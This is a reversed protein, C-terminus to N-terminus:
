PGSEPQDLLLVLTLMDELLERPQVHFFLHTSSSAGPPAGLFVVGVM